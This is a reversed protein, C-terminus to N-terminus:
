TPGASLQRFTCNTGVELTHGYIRLSLSLCVCALLCRPVHCSVSLPLPFLCVCVSVSPCLSLSLCSEPLFFLCQCLCVSFPCLPLYVSLSLCVSQLLRLSLCISPAPSVSQLLRPSLEAQVKVLATLRM